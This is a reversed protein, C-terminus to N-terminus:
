SNEGCPVAEDCEHSQAGVFEQLTESLPLRLCERECSVWYLTRSGSFRGSRAVSSKLEAFADQDLPTYGKLLQALREDRGIFYDTGANIGYIGFYSLPAAALIAAYIPSLTSLLISLAFFLLVWASTVDRTIGPRVIIHSIKDLFATREKHSMHSNVDSM